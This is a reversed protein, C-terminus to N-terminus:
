HSSTLLRFGADGLASCLSLMFYRPGYDLVEARERDACLKPVHSSRELVM